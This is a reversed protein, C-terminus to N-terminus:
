ILGKEVEFWGSAITTKITGSNIQLQYAARPITFNKTQTPTLTVTIKGLQANIVIGSTTTATACVVKGGPQDKVKFEATYGNLDIPINAADSYTVALVFSDGQIIKFNVSEM